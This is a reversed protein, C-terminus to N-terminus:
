RLKRWNTISKSWDSGHFVASCQVIWIAERETCTGGPRFLSETIVNHVDRMTYKKKRPLIRNEAIVDSYLTLKPKMSQTHNIEGLGCPVVATLKM